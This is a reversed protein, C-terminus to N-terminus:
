PQPKRAKSEFFSGLSKLGEGIKGSATRLLDEAQAKIEDPNKGKLEDLKTKIQNAQLQIDQYLRDFQAKQEGAASSAKGKLGNLEQDWEVLKESLKKLISGDSM